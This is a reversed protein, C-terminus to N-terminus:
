FRPDTPCICNTEPAHGDRAKNYNPVTNLFHLLYAAVANSHSMVM